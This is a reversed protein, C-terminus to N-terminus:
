PTNQDIDERWNLLFELASCKSTQAQHWSKLKIWSTMHVDKSSNFFQLTKPHLFRRLQTKVLNRTIKPRKQTFTQILDVNEAM